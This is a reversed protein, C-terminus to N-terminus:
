QAKASEVLGRVVRGPLYHSGEVYIVCEDLSRKEEALEQALAERSAELEAMRQRLAAMEAEKESIIGELRPIRANEARAEKLDRETALLKDGTEKYELHTQELVGSLTTLKKKTAALEGELKAAAEESDSLEAHLIRIEDALQQKEDNFKSFAQRASESAAELQAEAQRFRPQHFLWVAIGGVLGGTVLFLLIM